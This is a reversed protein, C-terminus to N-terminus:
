LSHLFCPPDPSRSGQFLLHAIRYAVETTSFHASRVFVCVVHFEACLFSPGAVAVPERVGVFGVQTGSSERPWFFIQWFFFDGSLDTPTRSGTGLLRDLVGLDHTKHARATDTNIAAYINYIRGTQTHRHQTSAKTSCFNGTTDSEQEEM